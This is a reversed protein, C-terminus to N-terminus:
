QEFGKQIIVIKSWFHINRILPNNLDMKKILSLFLSDLDKRDHNLNVKNEHNKALEGDWENIHNSLNIYSNGLDEIIYFGGDKLKPFLLNFSSVSLSNIHSADDLIIDFKEESLKLIKPDDQGCIEIKIREEEHRICDPNFDVGYIKAKPFYEKWMRLSHGGKVGLELFNININKFNSFYKEYVDLYSEGLHSHNNDYKDTQYKKGLDQLNM